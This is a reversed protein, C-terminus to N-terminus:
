MEGNIQLGKGTGLSWVLEAFRKAKAKKLTEYAHVEKHFSEEDLKGDKQFVKMAVIKDKCSGRLVKARLVNAFAGTNNGCALAFSCRAAHPLASAAMISTCWTMDHERVPFVSPCTCRMSGFGRSWLRRGSASTAHKGHGLEVPKGHTDMEVQFDNCCLASDSQGHHPFRNAHPLLRSISLYSDSARAGACSAPLMPTKFQYEGIHGHKFNNSDKNPSPVSTLEDGNCTRNGEKNGEKDVDDVVDKFEDVNNVSETVKELTAKDSASNAALQLQASSTSPM